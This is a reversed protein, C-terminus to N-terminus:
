VHTRYVGALKTYGTVELKVYSIELLYNIDFHCNICTIHVVFRFFTHRDLAIVPM